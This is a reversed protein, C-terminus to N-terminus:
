TVKTQKMAEGNRKGSVQVVDQFGDQYMMPRSKTYVVRMEGEPRRSGVLCKRQDWLSAASVPRRAVFQPITWQSDQM